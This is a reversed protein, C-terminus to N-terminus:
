VEKQNSIQFSLSLLLMVLVTEFFSIQIHFSYIIVFAFLSLVSKLKGFKITFMIKNKKYNTLLNPNYLVFIFIGYRLFM